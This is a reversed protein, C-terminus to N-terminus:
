RLLTTFFIVRYIVNVSVNLSIPTCYLTHYLSLCLCCSHCLSGNVLRIVLRITNVFSRCERIYSLCKICCALPLLICPINAKMSQSLANSETFHSKICLHRSFNFKPFQKRDQMFVNYQSMSVHTGLLPCTLANKLGLLLPILYPQGMEAFMKTEITLMKACAILCFGRFVPAKTLYLLVCFKGIRLCYM